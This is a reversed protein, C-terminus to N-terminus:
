MFSHYEEYLAIYQNQIYVFLSFSFCKGYIQRCLKKLIKSQVAGVSYRAVTCLMNFTCVNYLSSHITFTYVALYIIQNSQRSVNLPDKQSFILIPMDCANLKEQTNTKFDEEKSQVLWITLGILDMSIGYITTDNILHVM